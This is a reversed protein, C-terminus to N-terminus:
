PNAQAELIESYYMKCNRQLPGFYTSAGEYLKKLIINSNETQNLLHVEILDKIGRKDLM